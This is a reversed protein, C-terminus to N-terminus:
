SASTLGAVYFDLEPLSHEVFSVAEPTITISIIAIKAPSQKQLEYLLSEISQAASISEVALLVLDNPRAENISTSGKRLVADGSTLLALGFSEKEMLRLIPDALGIDAPDVLLSYNRTIAADTVGAQERTAEYTLMSMLADRATTLKEADDQTALYETLYVAVLPHDSFHVTM